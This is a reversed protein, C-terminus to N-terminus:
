QLYNMFRHLPYSKRKKKKKKEEEAIEKLSMVVALLGTIQLLLVTPFLRM